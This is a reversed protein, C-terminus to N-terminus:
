RQAKVVEAPAGAPRLRQRLTYALEGLQLLVRDPWPEQKWLQRAFAARELNYSTHGGFTKAGPHYHCYSLVEQLVDFRYHRSIRLWYDYDLILHLDERLPGVKEYVERRWFISPQHLRYSKWYALLRRRGGYGVLGRFPPAGNEYLRVCEGALVACPRSHMMEAVRWLTRPAFYDDSNLWCLIDGTARQLGKNVAHGQGHDQESVWWTLRPAYRRLIDLTGDTSGGDVVLYELHPYDQDLVSRLTQEIYQGQNFSPTIVSIKPLM